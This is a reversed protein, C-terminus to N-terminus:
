ERGVKRGLIGWPRMLLIVVLIFFAIVQKYATPIWLPKSFDILGGL